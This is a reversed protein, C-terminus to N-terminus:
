EKNEKKIFDELKVATGTATVMVFSKDKSSIAEYDLKVGVIADASLKLAEMCLKNLAMDKVSAFEKEYSGSRGGWFDTVEAFFERIAGFGTVSVSNVIGLYSTIKKDEITSTTTMILRDIADIKDILKAKCDSCETAWGHYEAGCKPCKKM